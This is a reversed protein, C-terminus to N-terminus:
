CDTLEFLASLFTFYLCARVSALFSLDVLWFIYCCIFSLIRLYFSLNSSRNIHWLSVSSKSILWGFCLVSWSLLDVSWFISSNIFLVAAIDVSWFISWCILFNIFLKLNQDDYYFILLYFKLNSSWWSLINILLYFNLYVTCIFLDITLGLSWNIQHYIIKIWPRSEREKLHATPTLILNFSDCDYTLDSIKASSPFFFSYCPSYSLQQWLKFIKLMDCRKNYVGQMQLTVCWCKESIHGFQYKTYLTKLKLWYQLQFESIPSSGGLYWTSSIRLLFFGGGCINSRWSWFYSVQFPHNILM